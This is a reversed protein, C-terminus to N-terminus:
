VKPTYHGTREMRQEWQRSNINIFTDIMDQLEEPRDMRAIEDKITENLGWYYQSVLADDDWDTLAAIRQFEAAYKAASKDMKLIHLRREAARKEDVVGFARRLEDKFKKYDGFISEKDDMREKPTKDLFEHLKPDVWDFAADKLYSVTFLGKDMESRFKAQNFGIYLELKAL